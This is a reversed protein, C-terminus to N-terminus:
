DTTLCRSICALGGGGATAGALPSSGRACACGVEATYAGELTLAAAALWGCWGAYPGACTGGRAGGGPGPPGLLLGGRGGGPLRGVTCHCGSNVTCGCGSRRRPSRRAAAAAGAGAAALEECDMTGARTSAGATAGAGIIGSASRGRDLVGGSCAADRGGELPGGVYSGGVCMGAKGRGGAAALGSAGRPEGGWVILRSLAPTGAIAGAGAGAIAIAIAGAGAATSAGIAGFAVVCSM